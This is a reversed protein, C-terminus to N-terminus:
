RRISFDIRFLSLLHALIDLYYGALGARRLHGLCEVPRQLTVELAALQLVGVQQLLALGLEALLILVGHIVIIVVVVILLM